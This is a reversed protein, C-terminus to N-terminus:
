VGHDVALRQASSMRRYVDAMAEDIVEVQGPDLRMPPTNRAPRVGSARGAGTEPPLRFTGGRTPRCAFM